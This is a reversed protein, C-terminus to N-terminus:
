GFMGPFEAGETEEWGCKMDTLITELEDAAEWHEDQDEANKKHEEALPTLEDIAAQLANDANSLRDARSLSRGKYPQFEQYSVKPDALELKELLTKIEDDKGDVEGHASDLTDACERVDACRQTSELNSSEMNSAWEEMEDRLEGLAGIAIEIAEVATCQYTVWKGKKKGM